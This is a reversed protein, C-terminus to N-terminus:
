CQVMSKVFFDLTKAFNKHFFKGRYIVAGTLRRHFLPIEPTDPNNPM